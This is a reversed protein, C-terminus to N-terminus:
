CLLPLTLTNQYVHLLVEVLMLNLLIITISRLSISIKIIPYFFYSNNQWKLVFACFSVGFRTVISTHYSYKTTNHRIVFIDYICGGCVDCLKTQCSRMKQNLLNKKMYFWLALEHMFIEKFTKNVDIICCARFHIELAM